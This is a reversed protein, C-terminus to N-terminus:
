YSEAYDCNDNQCEWIEYNGLTESPKHTLVMNHDGCDPHSGNYECATDKLEQPLNYTFPKCAEGCSGCFGGARLYQREVAKDWVAMAKVDTISMTAAPKTAAKPSELGGLELGETDTPEPTNM